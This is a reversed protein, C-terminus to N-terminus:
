ESRLEIENKIKGLLSAGGEPKCSLKINGDVFDITLNGEQKEGPGPTGGPEMDVTEPSEYNARKIDDLNWSESKVTKSIFGSEKYLVLRKDTLYARYEKDEYTVKPGEWEIEEGKNLKDEISM